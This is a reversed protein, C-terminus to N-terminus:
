VFLPAMATLNGAKNRVSMQLSDIESSQLPRIGLNKLRGRLDM